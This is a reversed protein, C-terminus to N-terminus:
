GDPFAGRAHRVREPIGATPVGGLDGAVRAPEGDLEVGLVAVPVEDAVVEAHEEEAVRDLERIEDVRLLRVRHRELPLVRVAHEVEQALCGLCQV